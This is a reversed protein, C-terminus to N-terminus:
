MQLNKVKTSLLMSEEIAQKILIYASEFDWESDLDFNVTTSQFSIDRPLDFTSIADNHRIM